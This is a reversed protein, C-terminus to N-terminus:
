SVKKDFESHLSGQVLKLGLPILQFSHSLQILVDHGLDRLDVLLVLFQTILQRYKLLLEILSPNDCFFGARSIIFEPLLSIVLLDVM